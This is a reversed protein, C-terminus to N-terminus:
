GKWWMCDGLTFVGYTLGCSLSIIAITDTNALSTKRRPFEQAQTNRTTPGQSSAVFRRM